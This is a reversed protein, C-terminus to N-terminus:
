WSIWNDDFTLTLHYFFRHLIAVTCQISYVSHKKLTRQPTAAVIGCTCNYVICLDGMPLHLFLQPHSFCQCFFSADKFYLIYLNGFIIEIFYKVSSLIYRKHWKILRNSARRKRCTVREVTYRRDISIHPDGTILTRWYESNWRVFQSAQRM